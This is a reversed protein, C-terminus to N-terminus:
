SAKRGEEDFIDITTSGYQAGKKERKQRLRFPFGLQGSPPWGLSAKRFYYLFLFFRQTRFKKTEKPFDSKLDPSMETVIKVRALGDIAAM